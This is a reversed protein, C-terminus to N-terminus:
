SDNFARRKEQFWCSQISSLPSMRFSIIPSQQFYIERSSFFEGLTQCLRNFFLHLTKCISTNYQYKQYNSELLSNTRIMDALSWFFTKNKVVMQKATFHKRWATNLRRSQKQRQNLEQKRKKQRGLTCNVTDILVPYFPWFDEFTKIFFPPFIFSIYDAWVHCKM